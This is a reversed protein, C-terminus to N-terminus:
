DVNVYIEKKKGKEYDWIVCVARKLAGTYGSDYHYRDSGSISPMVQVVFGNHEAVKLHHLHGIHWERYKTRGWMEPVESQMLTLLNKKEKDGHTYGILCNGYEIYNRSIPRTHLIVQENDRYLRDVVVNAYYGITADHNSKVYVFEVDAIELCKQITEIILDVGCDFMKAMRTDTDQPTGKTTTQAENDFHFFDNGFPLLIKEVGEYRIEDLMKDLVTRYTEAAIKLDYDENTEERWALKGLHLDFIALEAMIRRDFDELSYRDYNTFEIFHKEIINDVLENISGETIAFQIPKVTLKSAYLEHTGDKKSYANWISLRHNLLEWQTVDYGHLRLIEIPNKMPNSVINVLIESKQVGDSSTEVSIRKIKDKGLIKNDIIEKPKSDAKNPRYSPDNTARRYMSRYFDKHKKIGFEVNLIHTASVWDVKKGSTTMTTLSEVVEVVRDKNIKLNM